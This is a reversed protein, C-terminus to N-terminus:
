VKIKKMLSNFTRESFGSAVSILFAFSSDGNITSSYFNTKTIWYVVFGVLLGLFVSLLASTALYKKSSFSSLDINNNRQLLSLCAGIVGGGMFFFVPKLLIEDVSDYAIYLVICAAISEAINFLVLNNYRRETTHGRLSKVKDETSKFYENVKVSGDCTCANFYTLGIEQRVRKKSKDDADSPIGELLSQLKLSKKSFESITAEDEISYILIGESNTGVLVNDTQGIIRALKGGSIEDGVDYEGCKKTMCQEKTPIVSMIYVGLYNGDVRNFM